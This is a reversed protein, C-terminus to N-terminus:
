ATRNREFFPPTMRLLQNMYRSRLIREVLNAGGFLKHMWIYTFIYILILTVIILAIYKTLSAWTISGRVIEDIASGLLRPPFLEGIGCIILM